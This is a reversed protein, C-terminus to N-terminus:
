ARSLKTDTLQRDEEVEAGCDLGIAVEGDVGEVGVAETAEADMGIASGDM